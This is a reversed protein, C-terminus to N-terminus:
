SLNLHGRLIHLTTVLAYFHDYFDTDADHLAHLPYYPLAPIFSAPSLKSTLPPLPLTPTHTPFPLTPAHAPFRFPQYTLPLPSIYFIPTCPTRRPHALLPPSPPLSLQPYLPRTRLLLLPLFLM